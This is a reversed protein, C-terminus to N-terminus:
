CYSMGVHLTLWLGVARHMSCGRPVDPAAPLHEWPWFKSPTWLGVYPYDQNHTPRPSEHQIRAWEVLQM